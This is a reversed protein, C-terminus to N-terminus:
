VGPEAFAGLLIGADAGVAAGSSVGPVFPDALAKRVM